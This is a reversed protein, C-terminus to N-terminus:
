PKQEPKGTDEKKDEKSPYKNYDGILGKAPCMKVIPCGVCHVVLAIPCLTMNKKSQDM